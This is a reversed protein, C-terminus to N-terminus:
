ETPIRCYFTSGKNEESEFWIEGSLLHALSRCISLGLGMSKEGNLGTRGAIGHREFLHPKLEDPIGIGQDAVSITIHTDSREISIRIEKNEPTFKVANSVLNNIIQMLKIEDTDAHIVSETTSFFFKRHRYSHKLEHFIYHVKKVLDFRANKIFINSSKAHEEQMLDNIIELCHRSNEDVLSFYAKINQDDTSAILKQAEASLNRTLILAGSIHHVLTDLLTNKKTGFEILYSEHQKPKTIDRVFVVVASAHNVAYVNCCLFVPRGENGAMQLEFETLGDRKSAQIFRNKVYERDGPMVGELLAEVSGQMDDERLGLMRIAVENTYVVKRDAISFIVLGETSHDGIAHLADFHVLNNEM